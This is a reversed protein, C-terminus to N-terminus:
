LLKGFGAQGALTNTLISHLHQILTGLIQPELWVDKVSPVTM